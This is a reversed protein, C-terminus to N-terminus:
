SSTLRADDLTRQTAINSEGSLNENADESLIRIAYAQEPNLLIDSNKLAKELASRKSLVGPGLM